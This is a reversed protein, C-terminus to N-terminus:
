SRRYQRRASLRAGQRAGTLPLSLAWLATRAQMAVATSTTHHAAQWIARSRGRRSRELRSLQRHTPPRFRRVPTPADTAMAAVAGLLRPWLARPLDHGMGEIEIYKAGPIAAATERGGRVPMMKDAGGHIVLTPVDLNRLDPIRDGSDLMAMMQRVPAQPHYCREVSLRLLRRHEEEPFEFAPSSGARFMGLVHEVYADKSHAPRRMFAALIRPDPLRDFRAAPSSMISTLSLVRHPHAIAVTQAVTGGLSVGLVHAAEFGLAEILGAVDDAMDRLNYAASETYGAFGAALNPRPGNNFKTSHGTDRNDFRIVYFGRGALAECFDVPWYVMQMGLGTILVFPPDAPDGFAEYALTIGNASTLREGTTPCAM